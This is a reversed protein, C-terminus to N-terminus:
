AEQIIPAARLPSSTSANDTAVAEGDMAPGGVDGVVGFGGVNPMPLIIEKRLYGMDGTLASPGFWPDLDIVASELVRLKRPGKRERGM